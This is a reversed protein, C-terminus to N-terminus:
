LMTIVPIVYAFCWFLAQHLTLTYPISFVVLVVAVEVALVMMMMMM